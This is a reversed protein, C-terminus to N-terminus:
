EAQNRFLQLVNETDSTDENKYYHTVSRSPSDDSFDEYVHTVFVSEEAQYESTVLAIPEGDVEWDIYFGPFAQAVGAIPRSVIFGAKTNVAVSFENVKNQEDKDAFGNELAFAIAREVFEASFTGKSTTLTIQGNPFIEVIKCRGQPPSKPL